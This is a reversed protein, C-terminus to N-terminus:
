FNEPLKFKKNNILFFTYFGQNVDTLVDDILVFRLFM